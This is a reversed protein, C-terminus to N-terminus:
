KKNLLNTIKEGIVKQEALKEVNQKIQDFLPSVLPRTEILGIVHWLEQAKVPYAAVEGIKLTKVVPRFEPTLMTMNVWDTKQLKLSPDADIMAKLDLQDWAANARMKEIVFKAQDQNRVVVHMFRYETNGLLNVLEKYAAERQEQTIPKAKLASQEWVKVWIAEQATQVAAQVDALKDLGQQRVDQLILTKLNKGDIGVNQAQVPTFLFALTLLLCEKKM